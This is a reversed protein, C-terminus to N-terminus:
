DPLSAEPWFGRIGAVGQAGARRARDLDAEAVGGLAYVPISVEDVLRAFGAWGLPHADPHSATRRVPSLVVFDAGLSQARALEDADHCSVALFQGEEVPRERLFSLQRSTIHLGDGDLGSALEPSTNLLVRAGRERCYAIVLQALGRYASASLGHARLQFLRYGRDLAL